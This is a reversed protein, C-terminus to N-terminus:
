TNIKLLIVTNHCFHTLTCIGTINVEKALAVNNEGVASLVASYHVLWSINNNVVIERLNKYDLIDSFIFPGASSVRVGYYKFLTQGSM